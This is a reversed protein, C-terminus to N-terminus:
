PVGVLKQVQKGIKSCGAGEHVAQGQEPASDPQEVEVPQEPIDESKEDDKSGLLKTHQARQSVINFAYVHLIKFVLCFICFICCYVTYAVFLVKSASKKTYNTKCINYTKAYITHKQM